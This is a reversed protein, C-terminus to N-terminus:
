FYGVSFDLSLSFFLLALLLNPNRDLNRDLNRNLNRNLNLLSSSPLCPLIGQTRM